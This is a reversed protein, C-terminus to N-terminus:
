RVPIIQESYNDPVLVIRFGVDIYRNQGYDSLNTALRCYEPSKQYSGGRYYAYAGSTDQCWENVNGHM